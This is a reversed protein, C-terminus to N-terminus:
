CSKSRLYAERKRFRDCARCQRVSSGRGKYHYTNGENYEHGQPCHTKAAQLRGNKHGTRGRRCNVKRTVVELHAPNCCSTSCPAQRPGENNRFHDLDHGEPISGALHEYSYRHAKVTKGNFWFQGYGKGNKAATWIWCGDENVVVKEWFREPLNEIDM